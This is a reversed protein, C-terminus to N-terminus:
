KLWIDKNRNKLNKLPTYELLTKFSLSLSRLFTVTHALLDQPYGGICSLTGLTCYANRARRYVSHSASLRTGLSM